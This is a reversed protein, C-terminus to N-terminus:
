KKQVNEDNIEKDENILRSVDAMLYMGAYIFDVNGKSAEKYLREVNCGLDAAETASIYDKTTM